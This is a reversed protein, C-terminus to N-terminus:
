RQGGETGDDARKPPPVDNWRRSWALGWGPGYAPAAAARAAAPPRTPMQPSPDPPQPVDAQGAPFQYNSLFRVIVQELDLETDHRRRTWREYVDSPIRVAITVPAM